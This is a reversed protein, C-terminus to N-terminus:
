GPVQRLCTTITISQQVFPGIAISLTSLAAAITVPLSGKAATPILSIAGLARRSGLDLRQIDLLPRKKSGSLWYWKAQSITQSLVLLITARFVTSMMALLTNLNLSLGWEPVPQGNFNTLLVFMAILLIIAASMALIEWYWYRFVHYRQRLPQTSVISHDSSAKSGDHNNQLSAPTSCNPIHPTPGDLHNCPKVAGPELHSGRYHQRKDPGPSQIAQM